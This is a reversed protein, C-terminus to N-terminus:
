QDVYRYRDGSHVEAYPSSDGELPWPAPLLLDSILFLHRAQLSEFGQGVPIEQSLRYADCYSGTARGLQAVPGRIRLIHDGNIFSDLKPM